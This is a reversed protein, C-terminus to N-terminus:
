CVPITSRADGTSGVATLIAQRLIPDLVRLDKLTVAEVKSFLERIDARDHGKLAEYVEGQEGENLGDIRELHLQLSWPAAM